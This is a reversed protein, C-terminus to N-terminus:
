EGGEGDRGEKKFRRVYEKGEKGILEFYLKEFKVIDNNQYVGVGHLNTM